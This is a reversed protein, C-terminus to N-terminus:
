SRNRGEEIRTERWRWMGVLVAGPGILVLGLLVYVFAWVVSGNWINVRKLDWVIFVSLGLVVPALSVFEHFDVGAASAAGSVHTVSAVLFITDYYRHLYKIDDARAFSTRLKLAAADAEATTTSPKATAQVAKRLIYVVIPFAFHSFASIEGLSQVYQQQFYFRYIAPL